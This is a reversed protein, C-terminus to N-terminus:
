ILYWTDKNKKIKKKKLCFVAYSIGLHSSNLRTSKRDRHGRSGRSAGLRGGLWEIARRCRRCHTRDGFCEAGPGARQAAIMRELGDASATRVGGVDRALMGEREGLARARRERLQVVEIGPDQQESYAEITARREVERFREGRLAARHHNAERANDVGAALHDLHRVDGVIEVGVERDDAGPITVSRSAARDSVRLRAEHAHRVQDCECARVEIMHELLM